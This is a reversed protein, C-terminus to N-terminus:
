KKSLFYAVTGAILISELQGLHMKRLVIYGGAGIMAAKVLNIDFGTKEQVAIASQEFIGEANDALSGFWDAIQTVTTADQAASAEAANNINNKVEALVNLILNAKELWVNFVQENRLTTGEYDQILATLKANLVDYIYRPDKKIILGLSDLNDEFLKMGEICQSIKAGLELEFDEITKM